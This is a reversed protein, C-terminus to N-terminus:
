KLAFAPVESVIFIWESWPVPAPEISNVESAPPTSTFANPIESSDVPTAALKVTADSPAASSKVIATVPAVSELMTMFEVPVPASAISMSVVAPLISMSEASLIVTPAASSIVKVVVEASPSIWITVAWVAPRATNISAFALAPEITSMSAPIKSM